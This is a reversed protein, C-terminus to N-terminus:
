SCEKKPLSASLLLIEAPAPLRKMEKPLRAEQVIIKEEVLVIAWRAVPLGFLSRLFNVVKQKTRLPIPIPRIM